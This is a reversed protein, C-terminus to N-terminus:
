SLLGNTPSTDTRLARWLTLNVHTISTSLRALEGIDIYFSELTQNSLIVQKM